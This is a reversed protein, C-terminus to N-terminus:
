HKVTFAVAHTRGGASVDAKYGGPVLKRGAVSVVSFRNAGVAGGFRLTGVPRYRMGTIGRHSAPMRRLLEITVQVAARLTVEFVIPRGFAVTGRALRLVAIQDGAPKQGPGLMQATSSTWTPDADPAAATGDTTLQRADRPFACNAVTAGPHQEPTQWCRSPLSYINDNAVFLLAGTGAFVTSRFSVQSPDTTGQIPDALAWYAAPNPSTDSDTSPYVWIGRADGGEVDALQTGNPSWAVAQPPSGDAVVGRVSAAGGHETDIVLPYSCAM